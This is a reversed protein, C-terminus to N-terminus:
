GGRGGDEDDERDDDGDEHLGIHYVGSRIVKEVAVPFIRKIWNKSPGYSRLVINIVVTPSM